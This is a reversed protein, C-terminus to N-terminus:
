MNMLLYKFKYYNHIYKNCIHLNGQSFDENDAM